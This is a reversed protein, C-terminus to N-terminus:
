LFAEQKLKSRSYLQLETNVKVSVTCVICIYHALTMAMLPHVQDASTNPHHTDFPVWSFVQICPKMCFNCELYLILAIM